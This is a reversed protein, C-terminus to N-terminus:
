YKGLFINLSCCLIELIRRPFKDHCLSPQPQNHHSGDGTDNWAPYVLRKMDQWSSIFTVWFLWYPSANRKVLHTWSDFPEPFLWIEVPGYLCVCSVQFLFVSFVLFDEMVFDDPLQFAIPIYHKMVCFMLEKLATFTGNLRQSIKENRRVHNLIWRNGFLPVIFFSSLLCYFYLYNIFNYRLSLYICIIILYSGCHSVIFM